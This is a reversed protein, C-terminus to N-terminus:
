YSFFLKLWSDLCVKVTSQWDNVRHALSLSLSYIFTFYSQSDSSVFCMCVFKKRQNHKVIPNELPNEREKTKKTCEKRIKKWNCGNTKWISTKHQQQQKQEDNMPNEVYEVLLLLLLFTQWPVNVQEHYQSDAVLKKQKTPQQLSRRM